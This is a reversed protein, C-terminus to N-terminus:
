PHLHAAYKSLYRDTLPGRACPPEVTLAEGPSLGTPPYYFALGAGESKRGCGCHACVTTMLAVPRWDHTRPPPAPPKAAQKAEWNALHRLRLPTLEGVECPPTLSRVAVTGDAMSYETEWRNPGKEKNLKGCGCQRCIYTHEWLRVWRHRPKM